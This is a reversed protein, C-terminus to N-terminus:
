DHLIINTKNVTMFKFRNFKNLFEDISVKQFGHPHQIMTRSYAHDKLIELTQEDNTDYTKKM